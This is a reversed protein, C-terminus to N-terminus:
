KKKRRAGLLTLLGLGLLAMTGPEPVTVSLARMSVIDGEMLGTVDIRIKVISHVDWDGHDFGRGTGSGDYDNLNSPSSTSITGADSTYTFWQNEAAGLDALNGWTGPGTRIYVTRRWLSDDADWAGSYFWLRTTQNTLARDDVTDVRIDISFRTNASLAVMDFVGIEPSVINYQDEIQEMSGMRIYDSVASGGELVLMDMQNLPTFDRILPTANQSGNQHRNNDNDDFDDTYGLPVTTYATSALCLVVAVALLKSM